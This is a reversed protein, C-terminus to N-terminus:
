EPLSWFERLATFVQQLAAPTTAGEYVTVQKGGGTITYQYRDAGPKGYQSDLSQWAPSEVVSRIQEVQPKQLRLRALVQGSTEDGNFVQVTGDPGAAVTMMMGAFGGSRTISVLSDSSPADPSRGQGRQCVVARGGTDTHVNHQRGGAELIVLYGPTIVQTYMMGPQPCGLSSDPWERATVSALQMEEIPTNTAEALAQQAATVAQQEQSNSVPTETSVTPTAVPQTAVATAPSTPVITPVQTPEATAAAMPPTTPLGTPSQSVDGGRTGTGCAATLLLLIPVSYRALAKLM